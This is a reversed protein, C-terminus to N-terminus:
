SVPRQDSVLSRVPEFLRERLTLLTAQKPTNQALKARKALAKYLRPVGERLLLWFSATKSRRPVNSSPIPMSM